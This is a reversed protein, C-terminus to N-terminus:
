GHQVIFFSQNLAWRQMEQKTFPHKTVWVLVQLVINMVKHNQFCCVSQSHQHAIQQLHLSYREDEAWWGRTWTCWTIFWCTPGACSWLHAVSTPSTNAAWSGECLVAQQWCISWQLDGQAYPKWDELSFVALLRLKGNGVVSEAWSKVQPKLAGLLFTGRYKGTM